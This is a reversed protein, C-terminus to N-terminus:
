RGVRSKATASESVAFTDKSSPSSAHQNQCATQRSPQNTLRRFSNSEAFRAAKRLFERAPSQFRRHLRFAEIVFCVAIVFFFLHGVDIQYSYKSYYRIILDALYGYTANIIVYGALLSAALESRGLRIRGIALYYLIVSALAIVWLSAGVSSIGESVNAWTIKAILYSDV